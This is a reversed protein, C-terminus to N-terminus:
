VVSVVAYMVYRTCTKNAEEDGGNDHDDENHNDQLGRNRRGNKQGQNKSCDVYFGLLHWAMQSDDWDKNMDELGLSYSSSYFDTSKHTSSLMRDIAVNKARIMQANENAPDLVSKFAVSSSLQMWKESAAAGKFALLSILTSVVVFSELSKMTGFNINKRGKLSKMLLTNFIKHRQCPRRFYYLFEFSPHV